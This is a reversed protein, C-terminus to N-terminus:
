LEFYSFLGMLNLLILKASQSEPQAADSCWVRCTNGQLINYSHLSLFGATQTYHDSADLILVEQWGRLVPVGPSKVGLVIHWLKTGFTHLNSGLGSGTREWQEVSGGCSTLLKQGQAWVQGKGSMGMTGPRARVWRRRPVTGEGLSWGRGDWRLDKSVIQRGSQREMQSMERGGGQWCMGQAWLHNSFLHMALLPVSLPYWCGKSTIVPVWNEQSLFCFSWSPLLCSDAEM